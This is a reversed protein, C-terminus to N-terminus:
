LFPRDGVTVTDPARGAPGGKDEGSCKAGSKLPLLTSTQPRLCLLRGSRSHACSKSGFRYKPNLESVLEGWPVTKDPRCSISWLLGLAALKLPVRYPISAAVYQPRGSGLPATLVVNRASFQFRLVTPSADHTTTHARSRAFSRPQSPADVIPHLELNSMEIHISLLSM